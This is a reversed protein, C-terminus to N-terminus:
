IIKKIIKSANISTDCIMLFPLSKKEVSYFVVRVTKSLKKFLDKKLEDEALYIGQDETDQWFATSTVNVESETKM